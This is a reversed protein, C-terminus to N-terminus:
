YTETLHCMLDYGNEKANHARKLMEMHFNKPLVQDLTMRLVSGMKMYRLLGLGPYCMGHAAYDVHMGEFPMLAVNFM